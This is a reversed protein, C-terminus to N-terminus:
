QRPHEIPVTVSVAGILQGLHYGTARDHAYATRWVDRVGADLHCARGHCRLCLSDSVLIPELWRLVPRGAVVAVATRSAGPALTGRRQQKAFAALGRSEWADPAVATARWHAGVRRVSWGPAPHSEAEVATARACETLSGLAGRDRLASALRAVTGDIVRRAADRAAAAEPLASAAPGAALAALALLAVGLGSRRAM